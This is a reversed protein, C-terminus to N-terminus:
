DEADVTDDVDGDNSADVAPCTCEPPASNVTADSFHNGGRTEPATKGGEFPEPKATAYKDM